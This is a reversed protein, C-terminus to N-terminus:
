EAIIVIAATTIIYRVSCARNVGSVSRCILNNFRDIPHLQSSQSPRIYQNRLQSQTRLTPSNLLQNSRRKGPSKKSMMMVSM